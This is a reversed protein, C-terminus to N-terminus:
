TVSVVVDLATSSIGTANPEVALPVPSTKKHRHGIGLQGEGNAGWAWVTGNTDIGYSTYGGSALSVYTVGSPPFFQKPWPQNATGRDGLQSDSDSGWSYLSGDALMVLTQGNNPASGGLAVQTVPSSDFLAVRVPVDSNTGTTGNGLQGAADYGWDYYQGNALLAGANLWSSV